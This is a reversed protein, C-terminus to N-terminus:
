ARGAERVGGCRTGFARPVIYRLGQTRPALSEYTHGPIASATRTRRREMGACTSPASHMHPTPQSNHHPSRASSTQTGSVPSTRSLPPHSRPPALGPRPSARHVHPHQQRTRAGSTDLGGHRISSRLAPLRPTPVAPVSENRGGCNEAGVRVRCCAACVAM